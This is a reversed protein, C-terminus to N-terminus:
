TSVPLISESKLAKARVRHSCLVPSALLNMLKDIRKSNKSFNLPERIKKKGSKVPNQESLNAKQLLFHQM